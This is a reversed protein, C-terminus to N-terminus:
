AIDKQKDVIHTPDNLILTHLASIRCVYIFSAAKHSLVNYHHATRVAAGDLWQYHTTDDAVGRWGEAANYSAQTQLTPAVSYLFPIEVGTGFAFRSHLGGAIAFKPSLL